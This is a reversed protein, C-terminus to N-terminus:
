NRYGDTLTFTDRSHLTGCVTVTMPRTPTPLTPQLDSTFHKWCKQHEYDRFTWPIREQVKKVVNQPLNAGSRLPVARLKVLAIARNLARLAKEDLKDAPLWEVALTDSSRHNALQPLLFVKFAFQQDNAIDLALESRYTNIYEIVSGARSRRLREMAELRREPMLGSLQLSFALSSNIAHEAGFEDYLVAEFNLLTAQCEGFVDHDIEPVNRHEIRDRLGVLFTLNNTVANWEGPYYEGLCELLNWHWYDGADGHYRTGRGSGSKVRWPKIGRRYFVAHLLSTWAIVMLVIYTGTRFEATPNNYAAVAGLCSERAKALHERVRRALRPAM